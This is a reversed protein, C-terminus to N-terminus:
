VVDCDIPIGIDKKPIFNVIPLENKPLITTPIDESGIHNLVINIIIGAIISGTNTICDNM